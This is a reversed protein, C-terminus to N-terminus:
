KSFVRKIYATRVLQGLKFKPTQMERNNKLNSYVEKGNISRSTEIPTMKTSSHITNNYQKIVSPMESLWIANRKEFVPKKLLNKITRNVRKAISPGKDTFRSYQQIKKAKLFNRFISNYWQGGRDGEIKLPEEKSKTLVKSFNDTKTKKNKKLTYM